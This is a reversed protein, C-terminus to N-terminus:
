ETGSGTAGLDLRRLLCARTSSPDTDEAFVSVSEGSVKATAATPIIAGEGEDVFYFNSCKGPWPNVTFKISSRKADGLLTGDSASVFEITGAPGRLIESTQAMVAVSFLCLIVAYVYRM